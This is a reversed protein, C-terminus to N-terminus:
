SNEDLRLLKKINKSLISPSRIDLFLDMRLAPLRMLIGRVHHNDAGFPGLGKGLTRKATVTSVYTFDFCKNQSDM